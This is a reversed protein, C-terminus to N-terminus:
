AAPCKCAQPLPLSMRTQVLLVLRHGSGFYGPVEALLAKSLLCVYSVAEPM